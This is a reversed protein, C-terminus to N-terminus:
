CFRCYGSHVGVGAVGAVVAVVALFVVLVDCECDVFCIPVNTPVNSRQLGCAAIAIM